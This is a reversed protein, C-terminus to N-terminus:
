AGEREVERFIRSALKLVEVETVLGHWGQLEGGPLINAFDEGDLRGTVDGWHGELASELEAGVAITSFGARGPYMGLVLLVDLRRYPPREPDETGVMTWFFGDVPEPTAGEEVRAWFLHRPLQVYGAPAPPTMEWGGVPAPLEVLARAKGEDLALVRKGFRWFHYAQFILMGYREAEEGGAGEPLLNRLLRGVQGLLLFRAPDATPVGRAEAEEGIWPFAESEFPAGAFVLEYPTPRSPAAGTGTRTDNMM